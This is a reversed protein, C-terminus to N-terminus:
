RADGLREGGGLALGRGDRDLGFGVLLDIGAAGDDQAVDRGLPQLEDRARERLAQDQAMVFRADGFDEVADLREGVAQLLLAAGEGLRAIEQALDAIDQLGLLAHDAADLDLLLGLDEPVMGFQLADIQAELVLVLQALARARDLALEVEDVVRNPRQELQNLVLPAEPEFPVDDDEDDDLDPERGILDKGSDYGSARGFWGEETMGPCTGPM